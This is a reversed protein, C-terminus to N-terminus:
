RSTAPIGFIVEAITEVRRDIAELIRVFVEDSMGYPDALAQTSLFSDKRCGHAARIVMDPTSPDPPGGRLGELLEGLEILSFTRTADAGGDVVAASVHGPEFGVILDARELRRPGLPRARHESLDLGISSAARLAGPLAPVRGVDLTGVSCVRVVDEGVRRRLLAEALPSRARNGTCVFVVEFGRPKVDHSVRRSGIGGQERFQRHESVM